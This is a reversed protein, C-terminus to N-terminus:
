WKQGGGSSLRRTKKDNPKKNRVRDVGKKRERPAKSKKKPKGTESKQNASSNPDFTPVTSPFVTPSSNSDSAPVISPQLSPVHSLKTTSSGDFANSTPPVVPTGSPYASAKKTPLATPSSSSSGTSKTPGSTTTVYPSVSPLVSSSSSALSSEDPSTAPAASPPGPASPAKTSVVLGPAVPNADSDTDNDSTIVTSNGSGELVATWAVRDSQRLRRRRVATRRIVEKESEVSPVSVVIAIIALWIQKSIFMTTFQFSSSNSLYIIRTSTAEFNSLISISELHIKHSCTIFTACVCVTDYRCEAIRYTSLSLKQVPLQLFLDTIV